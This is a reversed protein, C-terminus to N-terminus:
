LKQIQESEVVLKEYELQTSKFRVIESRNRNIIDNKYYNHLNLLSTNSVTKYAKELTDIDIKKQFYLSFFLCHTIRVLNM